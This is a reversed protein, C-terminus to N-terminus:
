ENSSLEVYDLIEICTDTRVTVAIGYKVGEKRVVDDFCVEASKGNQEFSITTNPLDLILTMIATNSSNNIESGKYDWTQGDIEQDKDIKWKIGDPEVYYAFQQGNADFDNNLDCDIDSCIGFIRFWNSSTMKIKCKILKDDMSDIPDGIFATSMTDHETSFNLINNFAGSISIGDGWKTFRAFDYYFCLVIFIIGDPIYYSSDADSHSISEMEHIFGFVLSQDENPILRVKELSSKLSM